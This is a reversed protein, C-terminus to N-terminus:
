PTGNPHTALLQKLWEIARGNRISAGDVELVTWGALLALARKEIDARFREKVRHAMGQVEVGLRLEPWAFDLEFKRPPLYVLNRVHPRVRDARLQLAFTAEIASETRKVLHGPKMAVGPHAHM